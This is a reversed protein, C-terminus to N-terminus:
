KVYFVRPRTGAEEKLRTVGPRRSLESVLSAPDNLDGFSIAGAICTTVCAPLMGAELRHLCFHCKRAKGAPEAKGDRQRAQGYEWATLSEYAQRRPTGDTFLQGSDLFRADYPCAAVCAGCGICREYDVAVIGDPRVYTAKTPEVPCVPICPPADCHMCAQSFFTRRLDPYRGASEEVVTRYFQDPPLKNEVACSVTCASCGVCRRMDVAMVWRRQAIPRQMARQLERQMRLLASEADTAAPLPALAPAASSPAVSATSLALAAPAAAATKLIRRRTVGSEISEPAGTRARSGM